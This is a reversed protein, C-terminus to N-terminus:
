SRTVGAVFGIPLPGAIVERRTVRIGHAEVMQLLAEMTLRRRSPFGFLGLTRSIASAVTTEAHCFTPVVVRGGPRVVRTMADLAADADPLLHLVNAAIVADFVGSLDDMAYVDLARVQVNAITAASVRARLRELMADAYDTAVLEGVVPAVAATVLGTGAALELVRDLGRVEDVVLAIARPMPGGIFWMSRDYSAASRNWFRRGPEDIM